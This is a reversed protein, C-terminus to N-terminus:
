NADYDYGALCDRGIQAVRTVGMLAMAIRMEASLIELMHAV